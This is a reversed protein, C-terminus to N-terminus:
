LKHCLEERKSNLRLITAHPLVEADVAALVGGEPRSGTIPDSSLNKTSPIAYVYTYIVIAAIFQSIQEKIM